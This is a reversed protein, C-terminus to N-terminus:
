KKVRREMGRPVVHDYALTGLPGLCDPAKGEVIVDFCAGYLFPEVFKCDFADLQLDPAKFLAQLLEDILLMGRHSFRPLLIAFDREADIRFIQRWGCLGIRLVIEGLRM